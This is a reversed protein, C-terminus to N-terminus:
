KVLEALGLGLAVAVLGAGLPGLTRLALAPGGGPSDVTEVMWTSFTTMGGLLGVAGVTVLDSSVAEARGLGVLVGLAFAGIVNVFTTAVGSRARRGIVVTAWFRLLAGLGGALAVALIM